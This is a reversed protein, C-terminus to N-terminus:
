RSGAGFMAPDMLYLNSLGAILGVGFVAFVIVRDKTSQPVGSYAPFLMLFFGMIVGVPGFAAIKLSFSEHKLLDQWNYWTLGASVLSILLGVLRGKLSQM